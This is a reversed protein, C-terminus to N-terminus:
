TPSRDWFPNWPFFLKSAGPGVCTMLGGVYHENEVSVGMWINSSWRLTPSLKALRESRKTLVQFRHWDALGMVAFVKEIFEVPVDRHFLDGMSNVFVM